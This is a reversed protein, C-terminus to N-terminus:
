GLLGARMMESKVAIRQELSLSRLAADLAGAEVAVGEKAVLSAVGGPATKRGTGRGVEARLAVITAEAETLREELEAERASVRELSGHLEVGAIREATQELLGTAATLRAVALSLEDKVEMEMEMKEVGGTNM